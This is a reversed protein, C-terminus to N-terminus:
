SFLAVISPSLYFDKCRAVREREREGRGGERRARVVNKGGGILHMGGGGSLNPKGVKEASCFFDAVNKSEREYPRPGRGTADEIQIRAIFQQVIVLIRINFAM